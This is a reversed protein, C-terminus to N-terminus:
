SGAGDTYANFAVYNDINKATFSGSIEVPEETVGSSTITVATARGTISGSVKNNSSESINLSGGELIYYPAGQSDGLDEYLWGVFATSNLGGDQGSTLNYTGTDPQNSERVVFGFTGKTAQEESFSKNGNFYIVFASEDVEEIDDADVFFSFGDLSRQGNKFPVGAKSSSSIPNITFSFEHNIDEKNAGGSDCASLVFLLPLLVLAISRISILRHM